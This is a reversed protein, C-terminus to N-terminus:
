YPIHLHVRQMLYISVGHKCTTYVPLYTDGVVGATSSTMVIAGPSKQKEFFHKALKVALLTNAPEMLTM